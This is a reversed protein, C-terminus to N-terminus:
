GRKKQRKDLGAERGFRYNVNISTSIADGKSTVYSDGNLTFPNTKNIVKFTLISSLIPQIGQQYNLSFGINVKDSIDYQIGFNSELCFRTKEISRFAFVYELSYDSGNINEDIKEQRYEYFSARRILLVGVGFSANLWIRKGLDFNYGLCLPIKIGDYKQKIKPFGEKHPFYPHGEIRFANSYQVFAVGTVISVKKSKFPLYDITLGITPEVTSFTKQPDIQLDYFSSFCITSGTSIGIKLSQCMPAKAHFIFFSFILLFKKM